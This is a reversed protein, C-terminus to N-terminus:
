RRTGGPAASGVRRRFQKRLARRERFEGEGHWTARMRPLSYVSRLLCGHEHGAYLKRRAPGSGPLRGGAPGLAPAPCSIVPRVALDVATRAAERPACRRALGPRAARACRSVASGPSSACSMACTMPWTLPSGSRTPWSRQCGRPRRSASCRRRCRTRPCGGRSTRGTCRPASHQRLRRHRDTLRRHLAPHRARGRARRTSPRAWAQPSGSGTAPARTSTWSWTVWTSPPWGPCCPTSRPASRRSSCCRAAM